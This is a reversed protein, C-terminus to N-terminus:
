NKKNYIEIAMRDIHDNLAPENISHYNLIDFKYPMKTEENLQYSIKSIIGFDLQPGKLAIDVDSGIKFNGKSRSGFIYANEVKPYHSLITVIAAMDTELLGFNNKM